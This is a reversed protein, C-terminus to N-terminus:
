NCERKYHKVGNGDFTYPPDCAASRPKPPPWATFAPRPRASPAASPSPAVSASPLSGVDVPPPEDSAAPEAPPAATSVTEASPQPASAAPAARPGGGQVIVLAIAAALAAAVCVSAIAIAMPVTKGPAGGPSSREGALSAARTGDGPTVVPRVESSSHPGDYVSTLAEDPQSAGLKEALHGADSEVDAVAKAREALLAGALSEVWDGVDAPTALPTCAELARAMERATQFRQQPDASLGRMTVADLGPPLGERLRSPPDKVGAMVQGFVQAENEGRFLRRLTLVEWLVVAAAYVDGRRDIEAGRLQEPPMYAVKGKMTGTRTSQLRGIAKAVGFDLVRAIGDTGVLVNHPSVDRHVVGLPEGQDSKAEHAAHLGHLLGSVIAAAVPLPVHQHRGHMARLLHSLSEGPVYEMVLLLETSTPVVDLTPVVNPHRIRAAIRAEDVFMLVFDPDKALHPHLRKIAVTRAFGVPGLLRALHVTAMGGAAIQGYLAYRGVVTPGHTLEPQSPGITPVRREGRNDIYL